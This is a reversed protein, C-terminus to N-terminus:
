NSTSFDLPIDSRIDGMCLCLTNVTDISDIWRAGTMRVSRELSDVCEACSRQKMVTVVFSGGVAVSHGYVLLEEECM